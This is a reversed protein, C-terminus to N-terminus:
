WERSDGLSWWLARGIVIEHNKKCSLIERCGDRDSSSALPDWNLFSCVWGLCTPLTLSVCVVGKKSVERSPRETEGAM